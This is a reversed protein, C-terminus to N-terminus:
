RQMKVAVPGQIVSGPGKDEASEEFSKTNMSAFMSKLENIDAKLTQRSDVDKNAHM